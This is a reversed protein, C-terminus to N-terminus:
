QVELAANAGPITDVLTRWAMQVRSANGALEAGYWVAEQSAPQNCVWMRRAMVVVGLLPVRVNFMPPPTTSRRGRPVEVRLGENSIDILHSPVGEVMADLKVRKRMSRREPRTEMVAMSVMCTFSVRDLPRPVYTAGRALVQTEAGADGDGIVVIPTRSNRVRVASITQQGPKCALIRDIVLADFGRDRIEEMVRELTSIRVPEFGESTLWDSVTNSEVAHPSAVIIRPRSAM